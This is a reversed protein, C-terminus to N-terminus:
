PALMMISAGARVAGRRGASAGAGSSGDRVRSQRRSRLGTAAAASTASVTPATPAASPVTTAPQSASSAVTAPTASSASHTTPAAATSVTPWTAQAPTTSRASPRRRPSRSLAARCWGSPVRDSCATPSTSSRTSSSVCATPVSTRRWSHPIPRVTTPQTGIHTTAPTVQHGAQSSNGSSAPTVTSTTLGDSPSIARRLTTSSRAQVSLAAAKSSATAARSSRRVLRPWANATRRRASSDATTCWASSWTSTTSVRMVRRAPVRSCASSAATATAPTASAAAPSRGTARRTVRKRTVADNTPWNSWSARLRGSRCSPRPAVRRM